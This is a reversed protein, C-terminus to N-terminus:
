SSRSSCVRIRRVGTIMSVPAPCFIRGSKSNHLLRKIQCKELVPDLMDKALILGGGPKKKAFPLRNTHHRIGPFIDSSNFLM